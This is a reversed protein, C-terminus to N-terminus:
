KGGFLIGAIQGIGAGWGEQAGMAHSEGVSTSFNMGLLALMISMIEPETLRKGEEFKTIAENIKAQQYTQDASVFKFLEEGGTLRAFAERTPLQAYEMAQPIASLARGAKAEEIQRNVDEVNWEFGARQEGLWDSLDQASEVQAKRRGTGWYGPGAYAEKVAPLVDEKYRKQAPQEVMGRFARQSMEPTIKEPGTTGELMGKLATGGEGFLPMDRYMSFAEAFEPGTGLLAKQTETFPAVRDGEYATQGKGLYPGYLELATGMWKKQEPTKTETVSTSESKSPKPGM